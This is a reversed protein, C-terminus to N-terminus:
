KDSGRLRSGLAFCRKAAQKKKFEEFLKKFDNVRGTKLLFLQLQAESQAGAQAPAVSEAM